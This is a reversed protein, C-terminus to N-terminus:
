ATTWTRDNGERIIPLCQHDCDDVQSSQGIVWEIEILIMLSFEGVTM